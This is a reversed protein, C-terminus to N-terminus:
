RGSDGGVRGSLIGRRKFFIDRNGGTNIARSGRTALRLQGCSSVILVCVKHVKHTIIKDSEVLRSTASILSGKEPGM